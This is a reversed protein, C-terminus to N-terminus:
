HRANIQYISLLLNTDSAFSPLRRTVAGDPALYTRLRVEFRAIIPFEEDGVSEKAM